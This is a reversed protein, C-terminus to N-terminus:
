SEGRWKKVTTHAPRRSIQWPNPQTPSTSLLTVCWVLCLDSIHHELLSWLPRVLLFWGSIQWGATDQKALHALPSHKVFLMDTGSDFNLLKMAPVIKARIPVYGYGWPCDAFLNAESLPTPAPSRGSNQDQMFRHGVIKNGCSWSIM